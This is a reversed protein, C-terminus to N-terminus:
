SKPLEAVWAKVQALELGLHSAIFEDSLGGNHLSQVNRRDKGRAVIDARNREEDRGFADRRDGYQEVATKQDFLIVMAEMVEEERERLYEALVGRDRCVRITEEAARRDLGYRRVMDDFVHSFM